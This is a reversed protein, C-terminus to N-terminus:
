IVIIEEVEGWGSELDFSAKKNQYHISMLGVVFLHMESIQYAVQTLYIQKILVNLNLPM